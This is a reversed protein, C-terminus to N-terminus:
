QSPRILTIGHQNQVEGDILQARGKLYIFLSPLLHILPNPTLGCCPLPDLLFFISPSLTFLHPLPPAYHGTNTIIYQILGQKVLCNKAGTYKYHWRDTSRCLRDSSTHPHLHVSSVPPEVGSHGAWGDSGGTLTTHDPWLDMFEMRQFNWVISIFDPGDLNNM